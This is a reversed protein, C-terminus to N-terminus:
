GVPSIGSQFSVSTPAFLDRAIGQHGCYVLDAVEEEVQEVLAETDVGDLVVTSRNQCNM